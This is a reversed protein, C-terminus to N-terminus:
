LMWGSRYSSQLLANAEENSTFRTAQDDWKL